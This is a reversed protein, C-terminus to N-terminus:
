AVPKRRVWWISGLLAVLGLGSWGLAETFRRPWYEVEIRHNGASEILIGKFAHNVRLYPVRKGDVKVIFDRRLWAEHLVVVGPGSAEVDFATTNTTLRYNKAPVVLRGELSPAPGAPQGADGRQMAAFPRGDGKHVLKGLGHVDEYEGIRDTFFARPWATESRYVDVDGTKVLTFLAGMLGQDSGYDFYHRVNLFDFARRQAPLTTYYTYIRWDWIRELRLGDLLERYQKNALGDPGGIGELAYMNMWGHFANSNVGVFRWPEDQADEKVTALARSKTSFSARVPPSNVYSPFGTQTHLGFRWLMVWACALLLLVSATGFSRRVLMWRVILTFGVLAMLLAAFNWTVFASRVIHEGHQWVTFTSRHVAQGFGLYQGILVALVGLGLAIDSWGARTALREAASRFGFGALVGLLTIMPCFFSNDIHAVNSIFPVKVIWDPPIVAFIMALPLLIALLVGLALRDACIRRMNAIFALVGLLVIFNVSGNFVYENAWYPRFLIEDFFALALGPQLQHAHPVNYSSYSQKITDLLTMWVPAALLMFIAGGCGALAFRRVREAAPLAAVLLVVAGAFNLTLLLMYAEKVTGSNMVTWNALILGGVWRAASRWDGAQVIGIWCLLIWPSYCTSFLAPHNIRHLFYGIFPMVAAVILASPLHRTARLVCLGIGAALLWKAILYKLDWAWAASNTAIVLFHIPDGFMSQGQGILQTGASNYRNWLPLEFDQFLARGQVRALPVQQWIIAGMDSGKVDTIEVDKYGPLTPFVDYLLPTGYNPSVLSKGLFILPYNSVIVAAVAALAVARGPRAALSAMRSRWAQTTARPLFGAALLAALIVAFNVLVLRLPRAAQQALTAQLTLPEALALSMIPDTATLAIDIKISGDPQVEPPPINQQILFDGASFERVVAGSDARIRAEGLTMTVGGRELPDLRLSRYTGEPLPFRLVQKGNAPVLTARSSDEERYSQGIDYFLQAYGHATSTATLELHFFAQSKTRPVFPAALVVSLVFAALLARFTLFRM